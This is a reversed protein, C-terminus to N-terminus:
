IGAGEGVESEGLPRDLGAGSEAHLFGGGHLAVADRADEGAVVDEAQGLGAAALGGGERERDEVPEGLAGVADECQHHRRRPLQCVLQRLLEPREARAEVQPARDDDPAHVLDVLRLHQHLPGM